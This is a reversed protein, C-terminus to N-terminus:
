VKDRPESPELSISIDSVEFTGKIQRGTLAVLQEDALLQFVSPLLPAEFSCAVEARDSDILDRLTFTFADVDIERIRGSVTRLVQENTYAKMAKKFKQTSSRTLTRRIGRGLLVGSVTISEVQGTLPPVLRELARLEQVPLDTIDDPAEAWTVLRDLERGIRKFDNDLNSADLLRNPDDPKKFDVQFSGFAFRQTPLDSLFRLVEKPRGEPNAEWVNDVIRKIAVTGAELAQRVVSARVNHETIDAGELKISLLPQLSRYLMTGTKPLLQDPVPTTIGVAAQIAGSFDARVLWSWNLLLAERVSIAGVTLDAITKGSTPTVFVIQADRLDSIVYCLFLGIQSDFSFIRPGDFEYLVSTPELRDFPLRLPAGFGDINAVRM